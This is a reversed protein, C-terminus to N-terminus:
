QMQGLDAEICPLHDQLELRIQVTKPISAQIISNIQRILESLDVAEVVFRGKGAFALLQRTLHAATESACVVDRLMQRAPNNASVTELALSSNGLIGVLLNNFDHAVGGALVGLSELKQTQRLQEELRKRDEIDSVTGMWERARGIGGGIGVARLICLHHM